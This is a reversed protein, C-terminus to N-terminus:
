GHGVELQEVVADALQEIAEDLVKVVRPDSYHAAVDALALMGGLLTEGTRWPHPDPEPPPVPWRKPWGTGCWQDIDEGFASGFGDAIGARVVEQMLHAGIPVGSPPLPQPNLEAAIHGAVFARLPGRPIVDAAKPNLAIVLGLRDGKMLARLIQATSAM